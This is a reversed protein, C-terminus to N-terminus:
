TAEDLVLIPSDKLIARAIALRQREGGSLQSGREGVVTDYGDCGDKLICAQEISRDLLINTDTAFAGRMLFHMSCCTGCCGV